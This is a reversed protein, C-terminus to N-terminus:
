LYLDDGSTGGLPMRPEPGHFSIAGKRLPPAAKQFPTLIFHVHYRFAQHWFFQLDMQKIDDSGRRNISHLWDTTAM